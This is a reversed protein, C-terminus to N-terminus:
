QQRTEANNIGEKKTAKKIKIKATTPTTNHKPAAVLAFSCWSVGRTFGSQIRCDMM